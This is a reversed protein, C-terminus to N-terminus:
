EYSRFNNALIVTSVQQAEEYSLPTEYDIIATLTELDKIEKPNCGQQYTIESADKGIYGDAHRIIVLDNDFAIVEGKVWGHHPDDFLVKDNLEYTTTAM